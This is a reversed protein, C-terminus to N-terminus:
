NMHRKIFCQYCWWYFWWGTRDQKDKSQGIGWTSALMIIHELMNKM